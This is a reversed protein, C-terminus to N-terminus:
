GGGRAGSPHTGPSGGPPRHPGCAGLHRAFRMKGALGAEDVQLLAHLREARRPDELGASAAPQRADADVARGHHSALSAQSACEEAGEFVEGVGAIGGARQLIVSEAGAAKDAGGRVGAIGEARLM